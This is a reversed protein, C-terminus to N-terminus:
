ACVYVHNSVKFFTSALKGWGLAEERTRGSSLVLHFLALLLLFIGRGDRSGGRAAATLTNGPCRHQVNGAVSRFLELYKSSARDMFAAHWWEKFLKGDKHVYGVSSMRCKEAPLYGLRLDGNGTLFSFPDFTPKRNSIQVLNHQKRNSKPAREGVAGYLLGSAAPVPVLSVENGVWSGPLGPKRMASVFCFAFSSILEMVEPLQHLSQFIFLETPQWRQPTMHWLVLLLQQRPSTCPAM